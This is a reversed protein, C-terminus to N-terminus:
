WIAARTPVWSWSRCWTGADSADLVLHTYNVEVLSVTATVFVDKCGLMRELEDWSVVGNIMLTMNSLFPM